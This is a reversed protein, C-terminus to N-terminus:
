DSRAARVEGPYEEFIARLEGIEGYLGPVATGELGQDLRVAYSASYIQSLM